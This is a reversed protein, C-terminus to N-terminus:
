KRVTAGRQWSCHQTCSTPRPHSAQKPHNQGLAIFRDCKNVIQAAGGVV